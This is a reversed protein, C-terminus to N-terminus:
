ALKEGTQDLRIENFNNAPLEAVGHQFNDYISSLGCV